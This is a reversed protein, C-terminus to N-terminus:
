HMGVLHSRMLAPRSLSVHRYADLVGRVGQCEPAADDGNVAFCHSVVKDEGPLKAGFGWTPFLQDTDYAELVRGVGFIAEEYVNLRRDGDTTETLIHHLSGPYEPLGNSRTFDIAVLFCIEFGSAIYELFSPSPTREYESPCVSILGYPIWDIPIVESLSNESTKDM